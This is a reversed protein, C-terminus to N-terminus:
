KSSKRVLIQFKQTFEKTGYKTCISFHKGGMHRLTEHTIWRCCSHIQEFVLNDRECGICFSTSYVRKWWSEYM